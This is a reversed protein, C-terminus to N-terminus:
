RQIILSTSLSTAPTIVQIIYLGQSLYEIGLSFPPVFPQTLVLQGQLTYINITGSQELDNCAITVRNDAPNPYLSLIPFQEPIEESSLPTCPSASSNYFQHLWNMNNTFTAYYASSNWANVTDAHHTIAYTFRISDGPYLSLPGSSILAARDGPIQNAAAEHWGNGTLPIDPFMFHAPLANGYGNGAFTVPMSDRWVARSYNYYDTGTTMSGYPANLVGTEYRVFNNMLMKEGPEDFLGNNNNDRGDDLPAEPGDVVAISIIPINSNYSGTTVTTNPEDVSDGNYVFMTNLEAQCGVYDDQWNGLDVDHWFTFYTDHYTTDSKNVYTYEYFLTNDLIDGTGTTCHFGYIIAAIQIGLPATQTFTHPGVRDNIVFYMTEDGKISPYDGGILPDYIGNGNVDVFPALNYTLNYNGKAPWETLDKPPIWSQNQVDGTNWRLQFEAIQQASLNWIRDFQYAQLSDVGAVGPGPYFDYGSQRYTAAAQHLQGQQDLGGVWIGSAFIAATNSTKPAFFEAENTLNWHLDGRVHIAAKLNNCDIYKYNDATEGMGIGCYSTHDFRKLDIFPSANSPVFNEVHWFNQNTPNTAFIMRTSQPNRNVGEPYYTCIRDHTIENLQGNPASFAVGGRPGKGIHSVGLWSVGPLDYNGSVMQFGSNGVRFLQKDAVSWVGGDDHKYLHTVAKSTTPPIWFNYLNTGFLHIIGKHTGFIMENWSSKTICYVTDSPLASNSRTYITWGSPHYGAVGRDTGFWLTDGQRYIDNVRGSPLPSNWRNITQWQNNYYYSVGGTDGGAWITGNTDMWLSRIYNDCLGDNTSFYQWTNQDWAFVGNDRLAIWVRSSSDVVIDNKARLSNLSFFTPMQIVTTGNQAVLQTTAIVIILFLRISGRM